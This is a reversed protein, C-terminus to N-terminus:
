NRGSRLSAFAINMAPEVHARIPPTFNQPLLFVYRVILRKEDAICHFGMPAPPAYGALECGLMVNFNHLQSHTWSQGISKAFCSSARQDDGCYVGRGYVMANQMYETGSLNRLGQSLILFLRSPDTGHFVAGSHSSSMYRDNFALERDQSSNVLLFQKANPMSPVKYGAPASTIFGRFGLFLWSLLDMRRRGLGDSGQLMDQINQATRLSELPPLSDIVTRRLTQPVPCGPLLDLGSNDGAASYVSSILLDAALPDVLLNHLRIEWPAARMAISCVRSCTARKWLKCEMSAACLLCTSPTSQISDLIFRYTSQLSCTEVNKFYHHIDRAPSYTFRTVPTRCIVAHPASSSTARWPRHRSIGATPGNHLCFQKQSLVVHATIYRAGNQIGRAKRQLDNFHTLPYCLEYEGSAARGVVDILDDPVDGGPRSVNREEIGLRERLTSIESPFRRTLAMRELELKRARQLLTQHALILKKALLRYANSNHPRTELGLMQGLLHLTAKEQSCLAESSSWMSHLMNLDSDNLRDAANGKDLSLLRKFVGKALYSASRMGRICASVVPLNSGNPTLHLVLLRELPEALDGLQVVDLLERLDDVNEPFYIWSFKKPAVQRNLLFAIAKKYHSLATWWSWRELTIGWNERPFRSPISQTLYSFGEATEEWKEFSMSEAMIPFYSSDQERM